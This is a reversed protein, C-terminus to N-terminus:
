AAAFCPACMGHTVGGHVAGALLHGVPAWTGDGRDLQMCWACVHLLGDGHRLFPATSAPDGVLRAVDALFARKEDVFRGRFAALIAADQPQPDALEPLEAVGRELELTRVVVAAAALDYTRRTLEADGGHAEVLAALRPGAKVLFASGLLPARSADIRDLVDRVLAAVGGTEGLEVLSEAEVVVSAVEEVPSGSWARGERVAAIADRRRGARVAVEAGLLHVARRTNPAATGDISAVLAGHASVAEEVTGGKLAATARLMLLSRSLITRWPEPCAPIAAELAPLEAAMRQWDEVNALAMCVAQRAWAGRFPEFPGSEDLARRSLILAESERGQRMYLGSLNALAVWAVLTGSGRTADLVERFLLEATEDDGGSEATRGRALTQHHRAADIETVATM